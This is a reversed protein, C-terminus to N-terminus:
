SRWILGGRLLTCLYEGRVRGWFSRLAGFDKGYVGGWFSRLPYLDGLCVGGRLLGCGISGLRTSLVCHEGGM